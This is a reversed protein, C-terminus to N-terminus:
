RELALPVAQDGLQGPHCAEELIHLASHRYDPRYSAEWGLREIRSQRAGNLVLELEQALPVVINSKKLGLHLLQVKPQQGTRRGRLSQLPM